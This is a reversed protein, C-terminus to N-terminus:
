RTNLQLVSAYSPHDYMAAIDTGATADVWLRAGIRHGSALTITGGTIFDFSFSVPTPTTPWQAVTYAVVGLRVPPTAILNAISNGVDYIGLCLTVGATVGAASQTFLTMGGSGTLVTAATLPATVWMAGKANETVTPTASCSVDRTLVRGGPHVVTALDTSYDLLAVEPVTSPPTQTSLLDPVPCGTTVAATCTGFPAVTAHTAHSATPAAYANKAPSDSLYWENVNTSGVSATCSVTAGTPDKCTISPDALPNPNGNVIKGAPLAHPDAVISSVFVPKVKAAGSTASVAVTVRKYNQAAPCGSGCRPDTVWTVFAYVIGSTRGDSWSRQYPVVGKVADVALLDTHASAGSTRDWRYKGTSPTFWFLPSAADSSGAAPASTNALTDYPLSALREVEQQARHALNQRTESASAYRTGSALVAGVAMASFALITIAVILEIM